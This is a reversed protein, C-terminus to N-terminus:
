SFPDARRLRDTLTSAHVVYGPVRTRRQEIERTFKGPRDGLLHNTTAPRMQLARGNGASFRQAGAGVSRAPIEQSSADLWQESPAARFCEEGAFKAQMARTYGFKKDFARGHRVGLAQESEKFPEGALRRFRASRRSVLRM